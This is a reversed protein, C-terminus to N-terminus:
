VLAHGAQKAPAVGSAVGGRRYADLAAALDGAEEFRAGIQYWLKAVARDQGTASLSLVAERYQEIAGPRGLSSMLQGRLVLADAVLFPSLGERRALVEDVQQLAAAWEGAIYLARAQEVTTRAIDIASAGCASMDRLAEELFELAVLAEPPELMLLLAGVNARLMARYRVDGDTGFLALAREALELATPIDGKQSECVSANWYAMAQTAPSNLREAEALTTRSIRLAKSTDGYVVYVGALAIALQVAQVTGALGREDLRALAAEGANIASEMEGAERFARCLAIHARLWVEDSVLREGLLEELDPIPDGGVSETALATLLKALQRLDTSTPTGLSKLRDLAAQASGTALELEVYDLELRERARPENSEGKVLDLPSVQLRKALGVLVEANPRRQGAEIRSVHATSAVGDAL